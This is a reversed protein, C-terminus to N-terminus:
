MADLVNLSSIDSSTEATGDGDADTALHFWGAQPPPLGADVIRVNSGRAGTLVLATGPAPAENAANGSFLGVTDIALSGGGGAATDFAIDLSGIVGEKPPESDSFQLRLGLNSARFAKQPATLVVPGESRLWLDQSDATLRLTGALTWEDVKFFRLTGSEVVIRADALGDADVALVTTVVRGGNAFPGIFCSPAKEIVIQDGPTRTGTGDLDLYRLTNTGAGCPVQQLPNAPSVAELQDALNFAVERLSAIVALSQAAVEPTAAATLALTAPSHPPATISQAVGGSPAPSSADGGGCAGLLGLLALAGAYRIAGARFM